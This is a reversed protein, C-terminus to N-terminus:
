PTSGSSALWYYSSALWYNCWSRQHQPAFLHWGITLRHWGITAGAANNYLLFIGVFLLALLHWRITAHSSALSSNGVVLGRLALLHWGIASCSSALWNYCGAVAVANSHHSPLHWGISSFCLSSSAAMWSSSYLLRPRTGGSRRDPRLGSPYVYGNEM